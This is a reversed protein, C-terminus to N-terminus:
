TRFWDYTKHIGEELSTKPQWHLVAHAQRADLSSRAMEGVVEPQHDVSLEGGIVNSLNQIIDLVSTEVGSGINFTGTVDEDLAGLFARVVDLVFVYDRTHKGTGFVRMPQKEVARKALIAIVGAEGFPDQRPGYVNAPRLITAQFKHLKSWVALYQESAYKSIGYPSSPQAPQTEAAPLSADDGYMAGGTSIFIFKKLSSGPIAELLNCLGVLNIDVDKRPHKLSDPVSKQAALHFIVEPDYERVAAQAEPTRVDVESFRAKPNVYERKGSSLDDLVLVNEGRDVLADVLHSGIFGAGGTVLIKM